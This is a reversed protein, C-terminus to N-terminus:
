IAEAQEVTIGAWSDGGALDLGGGFRPPVIPEKVMVAWRAALEPGTCIEMANNGGVNTVYPQEANDTSGPTNGNNWQNGAGPPASQYVQNPGDECGALALSAVFSLVLSSRM